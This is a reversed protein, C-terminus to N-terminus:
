KSKSKGKSKGKGKGKPAAEEEYKGQHFALDLNSTPWGGRRGHGEHGGSFLRQCSRLLNM